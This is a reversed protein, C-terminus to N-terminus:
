LDIDICLVFCCLVVCCMVHCSMVCRVPIIALFLELCDRASLFLISAVARSSVCAQKMVEHILKLMRCSALSVQCSEFQLAQMSFCGLFIHHVDINSSTHFHKEETKNDHSLNLRFIVSITFPDSHVCTSFTYGIRILIFTNTHDLIVIKLTTYRITRSCSYPGWCRRCFFSRGRHSLLHYATNASSILCISM